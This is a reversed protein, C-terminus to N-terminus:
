RVVLGQGAIGEGEDGQGRSSPEGDHSPRNCAAKAHNMLAGAFRRPGTLTRYPGNESERAVTPDDCNQPGAPRLVRM